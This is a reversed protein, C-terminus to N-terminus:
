TLFNEPFKTFLFTQNERLFQYAKRDKQDLFNQLQDHQGENKKKKKAPSGPLMSVTHLTMSNM